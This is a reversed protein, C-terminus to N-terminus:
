LLMIMLEWELLNEYYSTAISGRGVVNKLLKWAWQTTQKHELSLSLSSLALSLQLQVCHSFHKFCVRLFVTWLKLRKKTKENERQTKLSFKFSRKKEFGSFTVFVVFHSSNTQLFDRLVVPPLQFTLLMCFMCDIACPLPHCKAAVRCGVVWALATYNHLLNAPWNNYRSQVARACVCLCVVVWM